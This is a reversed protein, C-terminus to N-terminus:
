PRCQGIRLLEGRPRPHIAACSDGHPLAIWKRGAFAIHRQWHEDDTAPFDTRVHVGRTEERELAAAIMLRAVLLMNQLEWGEPDNFQRALVYRCWRDLDRAAEALQPGDRCVGDARWMLSKLSNRIDALDLPEGNRSRPPKGLPLPAFITPWRRRGGALGAPRCPGRLGAGGALQELGASQRRALRQLHSRRRGVLGALTTRGELDVTVGGIM